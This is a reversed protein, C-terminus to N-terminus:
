RPPPGAPVVYTVGGIRYRIEVVDRAGGAVQVKYARPQGTFTPAPPPPPKDVRTAPLVAYPSEPDLLIGVASRAEQNLPAFGDVIEVGFSQVRQPITGAVEYGLLELTTTSSSTTSTNLVYPADTTRAYERSAASIGAFYDTEERHRDLVHLLVKLTMDVREPLPLTRHSEHLVTVAHYASGAGNLTGPSWSGYVGTSWDQGELHARISSQLGRCAAALAPDASPLRSAGSLHDPGAADNTPFEYEHLDILIQPRVAAITQAIARSEMPVLNFHTRNIDTGGGSRSTPLGDPQMTPLIVVRHTALYGVMQPDTAYALDRALILASERPAPEDGHQLCVFLVTNEAGAGIDIRHLPHSDRRSSGIVTHVADTEAAVQELFATEEALTTWGGHTEYGTLPPM